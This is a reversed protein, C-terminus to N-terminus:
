LNEEVYHVPYTNWYRMYTPAHRGDFDLQYMRFNVLIDKPQWQEHYTYRYSLGLKQMVKGSGPNKIDHTATIYPINTGRLYEILKRGAETIFGRNWFSRSLGYGLDHSDDEAVNMFGIPINNTKLCVAFHLNKGQEYKKFYNTELHTKAKDPTDIPLIPLFANVESDKM